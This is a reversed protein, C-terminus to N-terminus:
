DFDPLVELQGVEFGFVQKKYEKRLQEMAADYNKGASPYCGNIYGEMNAFAGRLQWDYFNSSTYFDSAQECGIAGYHSNSADAYLRTADTERALQLLERMREHGKVGAQLENGFSLMVFSPHNALMRLVQALETRYYGFSSESEFADKPTWHSLEPQM